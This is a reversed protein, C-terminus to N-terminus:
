EQDIRGLLLTAVEHGHTEQLFHGADLPDFTSQSLLAASKRGWAETFVQDAAGWIFHAPKPWSLLADWCRQGELAVDPNQGDIPISLPFRRPGAKAAADPFPAEYSAFAQEATLPTASGRPFNALFNQMVLGCGQRQAMIGGPQWLSQWGRIAPTYEYGEHHLWTNLICLREFREPMDVAQRLGIPGGWDQCVLTIRQLDLVEILSRLASSHREITYWSDELIKDSRGFGIHDAAVCRYGADALVAIMRRYLYSWTPMGHVLLVIGRDGDGEDVFHMRVSTGEVTVERYHPEFPFEPLGAFREDPTRYIDIDAEL